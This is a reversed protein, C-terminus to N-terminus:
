EPESALTRDSGVRTNEIRERDRVGKEMIRPCAPLMEDYSGMPSSAEAALEYSVRRCIDVKEGEM